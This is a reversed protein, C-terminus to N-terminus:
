GPGAAAGWGGDAPVERGCESKRLVLDSAKASRTLSSVTGISLSRRVKRSISCGAQDYAGGRRRAATQRTARDAGHFPHEPDTAVEQTRGVRLGQAGSVALPESQVGVLLALPTLL